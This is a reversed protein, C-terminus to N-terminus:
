LTLFFQFATLPASLCCDKCKERHFLDPCQGLAAPCWTTLRAWQSFTAWSQCTVCITMCAWNKFKLMNQKQFFLFWNNIAINVESICDIKTFHDKGDMNNGTLRSSTSMSETFFLCFLFVWINKKFKMNKIVMMTKIVRCGKQLGEERVLTKKSLDSWCRRPKM